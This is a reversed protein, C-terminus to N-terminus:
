HLNLLSEAELALDEVFRNIGPLLSPDTHNAKIADQALSVLANADLIASAALESTAQQSEFKQRLRKALSSARIVIADAEVPETAFVSSACLVLLVRFSM